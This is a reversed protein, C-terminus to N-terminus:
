PVAFRLDDIHIDVPYAGAASEPFEWVIATIESPDVSAEPSGGNWDLWPINLQTPTQTVPFTVRAGNCTGDYRRIAPVCRGANPPVDPDTVAAKHENLWVHSVQQPATEILLRLSELADVQGWVSFSMGTFASADLLQCRSMYLGFGSAGSVTGSLHWDNQTVDSSLGAGGSYFFTGGPFSAEPGFMVATTSGGPAFLFDSISGTALPPCSVALAGVPTGPESSAADQASGESTPVLAIGADLPARVPGGEPARSAIGLDPLSESQMLSGGPAVAAGPSAPMAVLTGAGGPSNMPEAVPVSVRPDDPIGLLEGCGFLVLGAATVEFRPYTL